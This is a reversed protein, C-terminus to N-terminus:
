RKILNKVLQLSSIISGFVVLTCAIWVSSSPQSIKLLILLATSLLPIFYSMSGLLQINGNKMGYDWLFFAGGLPGLGILLITTTERLDPIVTTEFLMHCILSLIATVGCFAGVSSTSIHSFLRSIVSYTAWIIAATFAYIYGKAYRSEFSFASGNSILFIVGALGFLIGVIHFWKLKENPLFASFLVIFLPWLYNILNAEIAPANRIALFYFYHYGFLGIIGVLWVKLPLKFHTLIGRSEKKWLTLGILFAILFSISILEFPPVRKALVGLSALMSWLLIAFTGLINGKILM